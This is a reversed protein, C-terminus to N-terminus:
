MVTAVCLWNLLLLVLVGAAIGLADALLDWWCWHNGAAQKDGFEKGMALGAAFAVGIYCGERLSTTVLWATAALLITALMCATFHLIKDKAIIM